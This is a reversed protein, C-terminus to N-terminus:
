DVDQNGFKELARMATLAQERTMFTKWTQWSMGVARNATSLKSSARFVTIKWPADPSGNPLPGRYKVGDVVIERVRSEDSNDKNFHSVLGTLRKVLQDCSFAAKTLYKTPVVLRELRAIGDKVDQVAQDFEAWLEWPRADDSERDADGSEREDKEDEDKEMDAFRIPKQAPYQKGDAGKRTSTDVTSVQDRVQQVFEHSVGCLDALSRSSLDPWEALAVEVARRKDANTRRIGHAQNAKLAFALADKSNGHHITVVIDKMDLKQAAHYRHWGDVLYYGGDIAFVDV